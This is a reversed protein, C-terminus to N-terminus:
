QPTAARSAPKPEFRQQLREIEELAAIKRKTARVLDDFASALARNGSRTHGAAILEMDKLQTREEVLNWATM